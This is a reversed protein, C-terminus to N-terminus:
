NHWTNLYTIITDGCLPSSGIDKLHSTVHRSLHAAAHINPGSTRWTVHCAKSNWKYSGQIRSHLAFAVHRMADIFTCRSPGQSGWLCSQENNCVGNIVQYKQSPNQSKRWHPVSTHKGAALLRCLLSGQSTTNKRMSDRCSIAAKCIKCSGGTWPKCIIM